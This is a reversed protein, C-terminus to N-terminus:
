DELIVMVFVLYIKYFWLIRDSHEWMFSCYGADYCLLGQTQFTAMSWIFAKNEKVKFFQSWFCNANMLSLCIYATITRNWAIKNVREGRNLSSMISKSNMLCSVSDNWLVCHDVLNIWWSSWVLCVLYSLKNSTVFLCVNELKYSM